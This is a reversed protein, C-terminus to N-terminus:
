IEEHHKHHKHQGPILGGVAKHREQRLVYLLMDVCTPWSGDTVLRGGNYM